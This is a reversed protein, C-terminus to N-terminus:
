FEYEEDDSLVIFDELGTAAKFNNKNNLPKKKNSKQVTEEKLAGPTSGTSDSPNTCTSSDGKIAREVDSLRARKGAVANKIMSEPIPPIPKDQNGPAALWATRFTSITSILSGLMGSLDRYSLGQQGNGLGGLVDALLIKSNDQKQRNLEAMAQRKDITPSSSESAYESLPPFLLWAVLLRVEDVTSACDFYTVFVDKEQRIRHCRDEGQAHTFPNYFRDLFLVHNAEVIQILHM